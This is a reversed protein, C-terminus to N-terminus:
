AQYNGDDDHLAQKFPLTRKQGVLKIAPKPTSPVKGVGGRREKGETILDAFPNVEAKRAALAKRNIPHALDDVMWYLALRKGLEKEEEYTLRKRGYGEHISAHDLVYMYATKLTALMVAPDRLDPSPDSSAVRKTM